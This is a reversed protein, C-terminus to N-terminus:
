NGCPVGEKRAIDRLVCILEKLDVKRVHRAAEMLRQIRGPFLEEIWQQFGVPERHAWYIHDKMCLGIVNDLEHRISPFAGKSLMHAAHLPKVEHCKLCKPGQRHLVIARVWSDAEQVLEQHASKRRIRKRPTTSRQTRM